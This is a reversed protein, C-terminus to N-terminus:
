RFPVKIVAVSSCRSAAATFRNMSVERCCSPLRSAGNPKAVLKSNARYDGGSRLTISVHRTMVAIMFSITAAFSRALDPGARTLIARIPNPKRLRVLLRSRM